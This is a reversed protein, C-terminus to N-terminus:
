IEEINTLEERTLEATECGELLERFKEFSADSDFIATNVAYSGAHAGSQIEVPGVNCCDSAQWDTAEYLAQPIIYYPTM